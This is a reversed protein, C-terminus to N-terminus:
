PCAGYDACGLDGPSELADLDPGCLQTPPGPAPPPPGGLFLHALLFIPDSIDLVGSNDTDASEMCTPPFTGLFLYTFLFVGDSLDATGDRNPDGRHFTPRPTCSDPLGDGDGDRDAGSALDCADPIGNANCDPADGWRLECVDPIRNGNCDARLGELIQCSDPVGDRDCDSETGSRRNLIVLVDESLRPFVLDPLGDGELDGAAVGALFPYSIVHKPELFSRQRTGALVSLGTRYTYPWEIAGTGTVVLDIIQDGTVDVALVAQAAGEFRITQPDSFRREGQNWFISVSGSLNATALDCVQDGDLDAAAVAVPNKETPSLAVVFWEGAGLNWALDVAAMPVDKDGSRTIVLDPRGDGDVDSVALDPLLRSGAVKLTVPKDFRFASPGDNSYVEVREVLGQPGEIVLPLCLDTDGDADLDAAVLSGPKGELAESGLRTFEGSGDGLFVTLARPNFGASALDLNRDGNFDAKALFWADSGRNFQRIDSFGGRGDGKALTMSGSGGGGRNGSVLDLRGDGTFDGLEVALPIDGIHLSLGAGLGGAFDARLVALSRSDASTVVLDPGVDGGFDGSFVSRVDSQPLGPRYVQGAMSGEVVRLISVYGSGINSPEGGACALENTGDRDLDIAILGAPKEPLGSRLWAAFRGQGDNRLLTVTYGLLNAVALDPDSDGDLDGVALAIPADGAPYHGAPLFGGTGNNLFVSASSSFYNCVALDPRRDGNFDATGLGRPSAQAVLRAGKQLAGDGGNMHLSIDGVIEAPMGGELKGANTVAADLDGDGDIDLFAMAQTGRGLATPVPDSLRRAADQKFVFLSGNENGFPNGVSLVCLHPLGQPALRVVAASSPRLSVSIEIPAEFGGRRDGWQVTITDSWGNALILDTADDGDLDALAGGEVLGAVPIIEAVDLGASKDSLDCADPVQNHNCDAAAGAAVDEADDRGNHDCDAASLPSSCLLFGVSVIGLTVHRPIAM